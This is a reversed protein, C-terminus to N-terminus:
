KLQFFLTNEDAYLNKYEEYYNRTIFDANGVCVFIGDFGVPVRFALTEKRMWGTDTNSLYDSDGHFLCDTYDVGLYNVTFGMSYNEASTISNNFGETDYYNNFDTYTPYYQPTAGELCHTTHSVIHWEYGEMAAHSDDSAIVEYSDVTYTFEQGDISMPYAVGIEEVNFHLGMEAFASTWPDGETAACVSCTKPAQYNAEVWTHELAEGETLGCNECTKPAACSVETWVHDIMDGETLGCSECTKPATCSADKWSHGLAEGETEECKSCTKPTVCDADMWTHECACGALVFVCALALALLIISKKM